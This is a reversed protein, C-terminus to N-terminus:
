AKRATRRGALFGVLLGGVLAVLATLKWFGAAAALLPNDLLDVGVHASAVKWEGGEKVVTASWRENLVVTKGSKLVYTDKSTGTAIGTHDDLFRTLGDAEPNTKLSAIISTPGKFFEDFIGQIQEPKTAVKQNVTTFSFDKALCTALTKADQQDIATAVKNRLARLAEHDAAHPDQAACMGASVFVILAAVCSKWSIIV